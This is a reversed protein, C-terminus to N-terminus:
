CFSRLYFESPKAHAENRRCKRCHGYSKDTRPRLGYECMCCPWGRQKAVDETIESVLIAM